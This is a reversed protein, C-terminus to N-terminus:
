LLSSVTTSLARARARGARVDANTILGREFTVEPPKAVIVQCFATPSGSVKEMKRTAWVKWSVKPIALLTLGAEPDRVTSSGM